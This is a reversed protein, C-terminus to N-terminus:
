RVLIFRHGIPKTKKAQQNQKNNKTKEEWITRIM